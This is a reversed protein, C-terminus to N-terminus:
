FMVFNLLFDTEFRPANQLKEKVGIYLVDKFGEYLFERKFVYKKQGYLVSHVHFKKLIPQDLLSWASRLSSFLRSNRSPCNRLSYSENAWLLSSSCKKSGEREM